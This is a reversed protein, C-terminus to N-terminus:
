DYIRRSAQGCVGCVPKKGDSLGCSAPRRIASCGVYHRERVFYPSATCMWRGGNEEWRCNMGLKGVRLFEAFGQPFLSGAIQDRINMWEIQLVAQFLKSQDNRNTTRLLPVELSKSFENIAGILSINAASARGEFVDSGAM